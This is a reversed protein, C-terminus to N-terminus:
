QTFNTKRQVKGRLKDGLLTPNGIIILLQAVQRNTLRKWFVLALLKIM